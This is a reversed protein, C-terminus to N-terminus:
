RGAPRRGPRTPRLAVGAAVHRDPHQVGAHVGIVGVQGARDGLRDVEGGPPSPTSRTPWPVWTADTMAPDPAADPPRYRPMAGSARIKLALTQADASHASDDIMSPIVQAARSLSRM